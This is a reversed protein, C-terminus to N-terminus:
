RSRYLFHGLIAFNQILQVKINKRQKPKILIFISNKIGQIFHRILILISIYIVGKKGYYKRWYQIHAKESQLISKAPDKLASRQYYHVAKPQVFYVIDRGALHLRKCFDFDEWGFFFDDDLLGVENMAQKRAVLFCGSLSDVSRTTNFPSYKEYLSYRVLPRFKLKNIGLAHILSNWYTPFGYCSPQISMDPNLIQPGVLSVEPHRNLYLCLDDICDGLVEIDSNILGLYRGRSEKIGINNAGSFGLNSGTQILHVLPFESKVMKPSEDLSNNDVVIVEFSISHITNFISQLCRRLYDKTNWSIIIISLDISNKPNTSYDRM